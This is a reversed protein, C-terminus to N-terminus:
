RVIHESSFLWKMRMEPSLPAPFVSAELFIRWYKATVQGIVSDSWTARSLSSSELGTSSTLLRQPGRSPLGPLDSLLSLGKGPSSVSATPDRHRYHHCKCAHVPYRGRLFNPPNFMIFAYFIRLVPM